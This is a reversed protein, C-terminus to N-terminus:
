ARQASSTQVPTSARITSRYIFLRPGADFFTSLSPVHPDDDNQQQCQQDGASRGRGARAPDLDGDRAWAGMATGVVDMVARHAVVDMPAGVDDMTGRYDDDRLRDVDRDRPAAEVGAIPGVAPDGLAVHRVHPDGAEVVRVGQPDLPVVLGARIGPPVVMWVPDRRAPRKALEDARREPRPGDADSAAPRPAGARAEPECRSGEGPQPESGRVRTGVELCRTAGHYLHLSM